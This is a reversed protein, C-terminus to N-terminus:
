TARIHPSEWLLLATAMLLRRSLRENQPACMVEGELKLSTCLLGLWAWCDDGFEVEKMKREVGCTCVAGQNILEDAPKRLHRRVATQYPLISSNYSCAVFGGESVRNTGM